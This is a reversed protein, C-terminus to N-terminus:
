YSSLPLHDCLARRGTVVGRLAPRTLPNRSKAEAGHWTTAAVTKQIKPPRPNSFIWRNWLTGPKKVPATCLSVEPIEFIAGGLCLPLFLNKVRNGSMEHRKREMGSAKRWEKFASNGHAGCQVTASSTTLVSGPGQRSLVCAFVLFRKQRSQGCQLKAPLIFCEKRHRVRSLFQPATFM